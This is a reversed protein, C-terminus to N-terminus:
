SRETAFVWYRTAVYSLLSVVVTMALSAAVTPWALLAKLVFSLGGSALACSAQVLFYRPLTRAHRGAGGFTWNRQLLYAVSFSIAYAVLGAPFPAMGLQIFAYTLAALLAACGGGVIVFRAAQWRDEARM